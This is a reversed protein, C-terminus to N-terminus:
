APGTPGPLKQEAAQAARSLERAEATGSATDTQSRKASALTAHETLTILASGPAPTHTDSARHLRILKGAKRPQLTDLVTKAHHGAPDLVAKNPLAKRQHLLLYAM